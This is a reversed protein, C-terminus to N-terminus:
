IYVCLWHDTSLVFNLRINCFMKRSTLLNRLIGDDDDIIKVDSISAVIPKNLLIQIIEIMMRKSIFCNIIHLRLLNQAM